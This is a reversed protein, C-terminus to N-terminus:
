IIWWKEASRGETTLYSRRARGISELQQLAKDIKGASQHRHFLSAIDTRTLGNDGAASLSRLITDAIPDGLADGFIFKASSECYDWLALAAWLHERRIMPSMDMLAYVSALRMVQAEGRATVAGILGPKGESLKGYVKLWVERAGEDRKIERPSKGFATAEKLRGALYDLAAPDPSGGEPLVKSRQTCLWLIRNAFGNGAETNDLRRALEAQTIHGLISIHADTAKAPTNKTLIHLNGSDWAQRIVASLTNGERDLVKLTSAFESEIVLLRKDAVGFDVVETEYITEGGKGDPKKACIKEIPDRVAWILGEGSSLGSQRCRQSWYTDIETFLSVIQGLSSGKRAKSSAGVQVAFLNTFHRDKEAVFYANRGIVNGYLVIANILLSVNSAESHPSIM